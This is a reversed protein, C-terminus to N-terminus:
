KKLVVTINDAGGANNAADILVKATELASNDSKLIEHIESDTLMNTLGDTCLLLMDGEKLRVRFIDPFVDGGIGVAKLIENKRPHFRAEDETIMGSKVLENVYSHDETIQEIHESDAIYCRSDGINGIVAEDKTGVAVVVTAGMGNKSKDSVSEKFVDENAKLVALRIKKESDTYMDNEESFKKIASVTIDSAKDGANHGGMGDAVAIVFNDGDESFFYNDENLERLLGIDTLGKIM